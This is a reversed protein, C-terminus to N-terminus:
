VTPKTAMPERAGMCSCIISGTFTEVILHDADGHHASGSITQIYEPLEKVGLYELCTLIMKAKREDEISVHEADTILFLVRFAKVVFAEPRVPMAVRAATKIQTHITTLAESFKM